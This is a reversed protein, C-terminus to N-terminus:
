RLKTLLIYLVFKLYILFNFEFSILDKLLLRLIASILIKIQIFSKIKLLSFCLRLVLLRSLTQKYKNRSDIGLLLEDIILKILRPKNSTATLQNSSNHRYNYVTESYTTFKEFDCLVRSIFVQDEGLYLEPFKIDQLAKTKFIFRWIAVENAIQFLANSKDPTIIKTSQEKVDIKTYGSIAIEFKSEMFMDLIQNFININPLDDSDWFAVQKSNVLKLGVNRAGGPGGFYGETINLNPHLKEFNLVEESTFKRDKVDHIIILQYDTPLKVLWDLINEIDTNLRHIPLVIAVRNIM